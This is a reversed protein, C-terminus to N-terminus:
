RGSAADLSGAGIVVPWGGVFLRQRQPGGRGGMCPYAPLRM